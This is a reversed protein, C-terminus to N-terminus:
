DKLAARLSYLGIAANIGALTYAAYAYWATPVFHLTAGVIAASSGLMVYSVLLLVAVAQAERPLKKFNRFPNLLWLIKNFLNKVRQFKNSKKM